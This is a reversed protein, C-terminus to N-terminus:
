ELYCLYFLCLRVSLSISTFTLQEGLHEIYRKQHHARSQNLAVNTIIFVASTINVVFPVVLHFINMVSNYIQVFSSPYWVICWPRPSLEPQNEQEILMHQYFSDHINTLACAFIVFIIIWISIRKSKQKDFNTSYKIIFIREIAVCAQLWSGMSPLSKLLFELSICGFHIWQIKTTMMFLQTVLLFFFKVSFVMVTLLAIISSVLLYIDCGIDRTQPQMFTIISLVNDIISLSFMCLTIAISVQVILQQQSIRIGPQIQYGIIADISLGYGTTTLQCLTGFYCDRCTCVSSLPCTPHDQFCQGHNECYYQGSCDYVMNHDFEFCNAHHEITCICMHKEDHFCKLTNKYTSCPLHYFKMRKLLVFSLITKHFLEVIHPCRNSPQIQTTIETSPTNKEQLIALYYDHRNFQLYIIHFPTETYLNFSLQVIPVKRFTTSRTPDKEERIMIMHILVFEPIDLSDAFTIHIRTKLNECRNGMYTAPCFCSSLTAVEMREDDPVCLGGHMCKNTVCAPSRLRCHRGFKGNPCLCITRNWKGEIVSNGLCVSDISCNCVDTKQSCRSGTWGSDCRCFMLNQQNEYPTCQGHPGCNLSCSQISELPLLLQVALCNVPMFVFRIPFLWSARYKLNEKNYVHIRVSYNQSEDKPRDGYLLYINFKDSCQYIPIYVIQEFSYITEDRDGVLFIVVAFVKAREQGSYGKFQLTLSVRQSQYQCQDGYYSWPCFCQDNLQRGVEVYIGRNCHYAHLVDMANRHKGVLVSQPRLLSANANAIPWTTVANKPYNRVNSLMLYNRKQKKIDTLQCFIDDIGLACGIIGACADKEYRCECASQPDVCKTENRCKYRQGASEPHRKRCHTRKDFAGQCEITSNNIDSIPLCIYKQTSISLFLHERLGCSERGPMICGLEDEGNICNWIYDCRTYTNTCSWYECDTEDTNNQADSSLETFGDCM